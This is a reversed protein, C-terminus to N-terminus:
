WSKLRVLGNFLVDIAFSDDIRVLMPQEDRLSRTFCNGVHGDVFESYSTIKGPHLQMGHKM